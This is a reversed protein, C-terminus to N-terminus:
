LRSSGRRFFTMLRHSTSALSTLAELSPTFNLSRNTGTKTVISLMDYKLKRPRTGVELTPHRVHIRVAIAVELEVQAVEAVRPILVVGEEAEAM